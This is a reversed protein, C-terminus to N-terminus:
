GAASAPPSRVFWEETSAAEGFLLSGERLRPRAVTRKRCTENEGFSLATTDAATVSKSTSLTARLRGDRLAGVNALVTCFLGFWIVTDETRKIKLV